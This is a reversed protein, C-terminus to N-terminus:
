PNSRSLDLWIDMAITNIALSLVSIAQMIIHSIFSTLVGSRLSQLLEPDPQSLLQKIRDTYSRIVKGYRSHEGQFVSLYSEASSIYSKAKEILSKIREQDAGSQLSSQAAEIIRGASSLYFESSSIGEIMEIRNMISNLDDGYRRVYVHDTTHWRVHVADATLARVSVRM